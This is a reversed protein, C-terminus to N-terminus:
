DKTATKLTEVTFNHNTHVCIDAAIKMAKECIEHATLETDILARAAALAYPGGSGVAFIGDKAELVDGNGTVELTINEDAVLIVAQLHRLIKDTRWMKALEVCSRLLQQPHEELKGELKDMLALCDATSGAFGAIINDNIRRLKRVNDKIIMDGLSVQGDGMIVVDPGKRVTLITTSRTVAAAPTVLGSLRPTVRTLFM